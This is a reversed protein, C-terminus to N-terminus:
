HVSYLEESKKKHMIKGFFFFLCFILHKKEDVIYAYIYQTTYMFPADYIYSLLM